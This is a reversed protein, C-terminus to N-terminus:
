WVTTEMSKKQTKKIGNEYLPTQDSLEISIENDLGPDFVLDWDRNPDLVEELYRVPYGVTWSLVKVMWFQEWGGLWVGVVGHVLWAGVM